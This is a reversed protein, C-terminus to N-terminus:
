LNRLEPPLHSKIKEYQRYTIKLTVYSPNEKEVQEMKDLIKKKYEVLQENSMWCCEFKALEETVIRRATKYNKGLNKNKTKPATDDNRNESIFSRLWWVSNKKQVYM